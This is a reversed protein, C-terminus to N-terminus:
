SRAAHIASEEGIAIESFAKWFYQGGGAQMHLPMRIVERGVARIFGPQFVDALTAPHGNGMIAADTVLRVFQSRDDLIAHGQQNHDASGRIRLEGPGEDRSLAANEIKQLLM